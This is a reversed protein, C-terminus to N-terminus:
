GVPVKKNTGSGFVSDDRLSEINEFGIKREAMEERMGVSEIKM